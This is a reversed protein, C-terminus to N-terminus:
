KNIRMHRYVRLMYDLNQPDLINLRPMEASHSFSQMEMEQRVPEGDGHNIYYISSNGYLLHQVTCIEEFISKPAEDRAKQMSRDFDKWYVSVNELPARLEKLCSIKNLNEHHIELERLLRECLQEQNNADICAQFYKKLDGPYSLLLPDYLIRELEKPSNLDESKYVSLIFSAAAIPRTFLWGVAKHCVFVLETESHLLSMDANLEISQATVDHLLDLVGHCLSLEGTLFWKTIIHSLLTKHKTLLESSFYDLAPIDVGGALISELLEIALSSSNQEVLKVLLHDINDVIGKHEPSVSTLQNILLHLISEPLEIRQFAVIDSIEYQVEPSVTNFFTTLLKEISQWYSPFQEGFNLIARLLSARCVSDLERDTTSNFLAWIVNAQAQDADLRGLAFYIQSRVTRNEHTSLNEVIHITENINDAHFALLSSSLFAAYADLKSHDLIVEISRRTRGVDLNCFRQFAGFVGGIALDRGAQQMLNVLCHLVDEVSADLSPLVNEFAHLITFFKHGCASRNVTELTAVLNINGSNHLESLADKLRKKESRIEQVYLEHIQALLDETTGRAALLQDKIEELSM